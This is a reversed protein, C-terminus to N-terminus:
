PAARQCIVYADVSEGRPLGGYQVLWRAPQEATTVFFNEPFSGQIRAQAQFPQHFGGSILVDGVERCAAIAYGSVNFGDGIITEGLTYIRAGDIGGEPGTPGPIGQPGSDGPLGDSGAPGQLGQAGQQGREGMPGQPGAAGTLGAPGVDGKPGTLGAPGADGQLGSPGTPGQAGQPGRAKWSLLRESQACRQGSEYDIVRLAGIKASYCSHISGDSQGPIAAYVVTGFAAVGTVVGLGIVAASIRKSM